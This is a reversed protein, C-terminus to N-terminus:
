GNGERTVEKNRREWGIVGRRRGERRSGYDDVGRVEM